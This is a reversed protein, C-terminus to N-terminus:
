LGRETEIKVGGHIAVMFQKGGFKEYLKDAFTEHFGRTYSKIEDKIKEVQILNESEITLSYEICDGNVPCESQFKISYRNM